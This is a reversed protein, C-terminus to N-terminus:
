AWEVKFDSLKQLLTTKSHEGANLLVLATFVAMQQETLRLACLNHAFDFVAAILDGCASSCVCVDLFLTFKMAM